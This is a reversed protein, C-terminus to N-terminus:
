GAGDRKPGARMVPRRGAVHCWPSRTLFCRMPKGQRYALPGKYGGGTAFGLPGAGLGAALEAEARAKVAVERPPGEGVDVVVPDRVVVAIRVPAFSRGDPFSVAVADAGNRAAADLAARRALGVYAAKSLANPSGPPEFLRPYAVLMARAGALAGLDAAKQDRSRGGVGKAIAGLLFAGVMVACM